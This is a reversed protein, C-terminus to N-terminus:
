QVSRKLRLQKLWVRKLFPCCCCCVLEVRTPKKVFSQLALRPSQQKRQATNRLELRHEKPQTVGASPPLNRKALTTNLDDM